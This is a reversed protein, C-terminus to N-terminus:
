KTCVREIMLGTTFFADELAHDIGADLSSQTRTRLANKESASYEEFKERWPLEQEGRLCPEALGGGWPEGSVSRVAVRFSTYVCRHEIGMFTRELFGYGPKHHSHAPRVAEVLFVVEAGQAKAQAFLGSYDPGPLRTEDRLLRERQAKDFALAFPAGGHKERLWAIARQEARGEIQWEPVPVDYAANGFVTTAVRVMHFSDGLVAVVALKKSAKFGCVDPVVPAMTCAGLALTALLAILKTM